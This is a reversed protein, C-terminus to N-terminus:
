PRVRIARVQPRATSAYGRSVRIMEEMARIYRRREPDPLSQDNIVDFLCAMLGLLQSHIFRATHDSKKARTEKNAPIMMKAMTDLAKRVQLHMLKRWLHMSSQSVPAKKTEDADGAAKLLEIVTLVPEVQLLNVLPESQFHTSLEELRSKAFSAIDDTDQVLLLALTAALNAPDILPLWVESEQRAEAIKQIVDKQKDLVLWPLAHTQILLLLENVSVQLLEAITRSMQPRQVMDKTTMYALNPWFPEFLRRPTVRRADALNLLENFACASVINNNSGLYELLKILVLNLEHEWVVTGLQGWAMIFTETLNPQNKDSISKLFAISNKRNRSILDQTKMPSSGNSVNTRFNGDTFPAKAQNVRPNGAGNAEAPRAPLVMSSIVPEPRALSFTALVRGAAIRLERLSSNLSQLCWQGIGSTELNLLETDECHLIVRRIALMAAVRPRRSEALAPLRILKTFLAEIRSKHVIAGHLNSRVPPANHECISCAIETVAAKTDNITENGGDAVCSIQSLLDLM